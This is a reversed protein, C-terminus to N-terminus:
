YKEPTELNNQPNEDIDISKSRINNDFDNLSNKMENNIKLFYDEKNIRLKDTLKREKELVRAELKNIYLDGFLGNIKNKQLLYYDKPKFGSNKNDDNDKFISMYKYMKFDQLNSDIKKGINDKAIYHDIEKTINHLRKMYDFQHDAISMIKKSDKKQLKRVIGMKIKNDRNSNIVAKDNGINPLFISNKRKNLDGNIEANKVTSSKPAIEEPKYLQPDMMQFSNNKVKKEMFRKYRKHFRNKDTISKIDGEVDNKIKTIDERMTPSLQILLKLSSLYQDPNFKTIFAKSFGKHYRNAILEFNNRLKKKRIAEDYNSFDSSKILNNLNNINRNNSENNEPVTNSNDLYLANLATLDEHSKKVKNIQLQIKKSLKEVLESKHSINVSSKSVKMDKSELNKKHNINNHEDNEEGMLDKLSDGVVRKHHKIKHTIGDSYQNKIKKFTTMVKFQNKDLKRQFEEEMKNKKSYIEIDNQNQDNEM